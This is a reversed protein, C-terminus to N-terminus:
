SVPLREKGDGALHAAPAVIAGLLDRVEGDTLQDFHDYWIGIAYLDEPTLLIVTEDVDRALMAAVSAQAVPAAIVLRAPHQARIVEIAARVTAGTAIGDDVLVVTRGTLLPAPREDRYLKERRDLEMRQLRTAQELDDSTVGTGLIVDNNLVRVGGTAIAGMALEEQWPVGLKRVNLVDLPADLARAIEAAVPVGGRPLALVIVDQGRLHQLRDALARGADTRDLFRTQM